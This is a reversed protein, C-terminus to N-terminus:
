YSGYGRVNCSSETEKKIKRQEDKKYLTLTGRYKNRDIKELEIFDAAKSLLEERIYHECINQSADRGTEAQLKVSSYARIEPAPTPDLHPNFLNLNAQMEAIFRGKHRLDRDKYDLTEELSLVKGRLESITSSLKFVTIVLFIILVLGIFALTQSIEM